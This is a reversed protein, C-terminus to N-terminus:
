KIIVSILKLKVILKLVAKFVAKLVVKLEDVGDDFRELGSEDLCGDFVVKM